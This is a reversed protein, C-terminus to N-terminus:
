GSKIAYFGFPREHWWTTGAIAEGTQTFLYGEFRQDDEEDLTDAFDIYFEIKYDPGWEPPLPYDAARVYGYAAHEAGDSGTYNGELNPIQEIYDGTPSPTLVLTGKWGDHNMAYTGAFDGPQFSSVGGVRLSPDGFLHFKWPQHAEAVIHWNVPDVTEPLDHQEYYESVMYAWMQGLTLHGASYQYREFFYRNLDTSYPQAGVACGIYGIAGDTRKVTIEVGFGDPNNTTQLPAPQPPVDTFIEGNACGNHEVGEVDTYPHYPPQTTFIGTDCASAFIIPTMGDNHLGAMDSMVYCTFGWQNGHGIYSVFRTGRNLAANVNTANPTPTPMCPNGEPYLRTIEFGTLYDSAIDELVACGNDVWGSHILLARETWTANYAGSEYTIVKDVYTEVEQATSAPVRGVMVDPIMDVDDVNLTDPISEGRLEGYYGNDNADWDDFTGNERYLDAYYLDSSYFARNYANEDKRDTMTFRMPFRDGDGVLMVYIVGATEEYDAICRKIQEPEDAGEYNAYVTELSVIEAPMETDDKHQKLPALAGTFEEPALILLKCEGEPPRSAVDFSTSYANNTEDAEPLTSNPDVIAEVTHSGATARWYEAAGITMEDGPGLPDQRNIIYGGGYVTETDDVVFAIEPLMFLWRERMQDPVISGPGNNRVTASFAVQDGGLPDAPIWSIATVQLDPLSENARALHHDSFDEDTSENSNAAM